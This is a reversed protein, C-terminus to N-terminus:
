GSRNILGIPFRIDPRDIVKYVSEIEQPVRGEVVVRPLQGTLVFDAAIGSAREHPLSSLCIIRVPTEYRETQNTLWSPVLWFRGEFEITDMQSLHGIEGEIGLLTKYIKM